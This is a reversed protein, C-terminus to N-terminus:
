DGLLPLPGVRDQGLHGRAGYPHREGVHPHHGAVGHDGGVAAALPAAGARPLRPLRPTPAPPSAVMWVPLASLSFMRLTAAATSSASGSSRSTRPPWTTSAAVPSARTGSASSPRM